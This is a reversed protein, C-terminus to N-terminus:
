EKDQREVFGTRWCCPVEEHRSSEKLCCNKERGGEEKPIECEGLAQICLIVERALIGVLEVRLGSSQTGFAQQIEGPHGLCIKFHWSVSSIVTSELGYVAKEAEKFPVLMESM